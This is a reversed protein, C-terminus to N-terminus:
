MYIIYTVQDEKVNCLAKSKIKVVSDKKPRLWFKPLDIGITMM